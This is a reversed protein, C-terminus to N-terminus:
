GHVIGDGGGTVTQQRTLQANALMGYGIANAKQDPIFDASAVLPSSEIFRRFLASGGGIFIAPTARLDVKLERLKDLILAAYNKTEAFVTDQVDEPLISRRGMIIDAIHDDEVQIDHLASVKGIIANDMDIVGMELSRCFQMDPRTTRLLLVDTTYGGIDIVFTRPTERLREAQPVVAAYAQPYVFVQQVVLCIPTGNFVFQVAGRKFYNAFKDRLTGYHEPPLGVALEATVMPPLQGMKRLELAIAFLTLIFFRDDRTKDRMFSIRQGSLAWFKGGFELVDTQLPPRVPYEALGSSFVFNTTKIASNGHDISFLM